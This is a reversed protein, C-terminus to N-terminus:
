LNYHVHLHHKLVGLIGESVASDFHKIGPLEVVIGATHEITAILLSFPIRIPCSVRPSVVRACVTVVGVSESFRYMSRELRVVSETLFFYM